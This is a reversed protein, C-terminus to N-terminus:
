WIDCEFQQFSLLLNVCTIQLTFYKLWYQQRLIYLTTGTSNQGSKNVDWNSVANNATMLPKARTQSVAVFFNFSCRLTMRIGGNTCTSISGPGLINYGSFMVLYAALFSDVEEARWLSADRVLFYDVYLEEPWTLCCFRRCHETSANATREWAERSPQWVLHSRHIWELEPQRPIASRQLGFIKTFISLIDSLIGTAYGFTTKSM